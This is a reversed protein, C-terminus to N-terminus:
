QGFSIWFSQIQVQCSSHIGQLARPTPDEQRLRNNMIINIHSTTCHYQIFWNLTSPLSDSVLCHRNSRILFQVLGRQVPKDMINQLTCNYKMELHIDIYHIIASRDRPFLRTSRHWLGRTQIVACIFCFLQFFMFFKRFSGFHYLYLYFINNGM